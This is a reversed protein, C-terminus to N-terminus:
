RQDTVMMRLRELTAGPHLIAARIRAFEATLRAVASRLEPVEEVAERLEAVESRLARNEERTQKLEERYPEILTLATDTLVDAADAKFKRRQLWVALGAGLGSLGGLAAIVSTLTQSWTM